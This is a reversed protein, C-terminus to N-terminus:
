IGPARVMGIKKSRGLSQSRYHLLTLDFTYQMSLISCHTVSERHAREFLLM